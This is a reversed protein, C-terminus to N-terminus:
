NNLAGSDVWCSIQDIQAKSLVRGSEPPPMTRNSTKQKILLAFDKVHNFNTLDPFQNGAVHCGSVACNTQLLPGIHTSFSPPDSTCDVDKFLDEENDYTCSGIFFLLIIHFISKKM